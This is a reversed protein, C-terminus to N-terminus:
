RGRGQRDGLNRVGSPIARSITAAARVPGVSGCCKACTQTRKPGAGAGVIYTGGSFSALAEPALRRCQIPPVVM